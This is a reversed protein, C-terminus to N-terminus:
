VHARGIEANLADDYAKRSALLQRSLSYLRVRGRQDQAITM